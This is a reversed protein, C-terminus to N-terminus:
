WCGAAGRGQGYQAALLAQARAAAGERTARAEERLLRLGWGAALMAKLPAELTGDAEHQTMAQELRGGARAVLDGAAGLCTLFMLGEAENPWRAPLLEPLFTLAGLGELELRYYPEALWYAACYYDHLWRNMLPALAPYAEVRRERVVPAAVDFEEEEAVYVRGRKPEYLCLAAFGMAGDAPAAVGVLARYDGTPVVSGEPYVLHAMGAKEIRYRETAGLWESM